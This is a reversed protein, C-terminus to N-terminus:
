IITFDLHKKVLDAKKVEVAITDGLQYKNKNKKGILSAEESNYYYKDDKKDKVYVMGECKSGLSGYIGWDSVGSIIGKFTEGIKNQMYKIQMYKISEREAKVAINEQESCHVAKKQLDKDLRGYKKELIDQLLRHVLVDPYRRIPSTFHTYNVFALGYHGINNTSYEAKSMSRLALSEILNQEEKGRINNLLQNLSKSIGKSSTLDLTYGFSKVIHKLSKLKENDPLDHVRYIYKQKKIETFLEAVKKNAILMFEEILKNADKSEKLLVGTPNKHEDLKFYVEKKNFNISGKSERKKRIEKAINDMALIADVVEDKVKYEKGTLSNEKSIINIKNDIIEQAENYSFRYNSNIITRGFWHEKINGKKDIKISVTFTLKEENPRLSCVKNSLKEPLMPIVRDVLYISTARKYAEKDLLTDPNVYHSVDAIHIGIEFIERDIKKFSLADDFDKADVPDITFTLTNRFDRRNKIEEESILESINKTFELVENPFTINVNNQTLISDIETEHDGPKGLVKEINGIPSIDQKKWDLIKVLVKDGNEANNINTSPIFIDTHVKREDLLAFAFNKNIQIIGVYEKKDRKILDIINALYFGKRKRTLIEFEVIDGHLYNIIPSKLKITHKIKECIIVPDKKNSFDIYGHYYKNSGKKYKKRM